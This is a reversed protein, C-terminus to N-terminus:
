TRRSWPTRRGEARRPRPLRGFRTVLQDLAETVEEHPCLNLRAMESMRAAAVVADARDATEVLLAYTSVARGPADWELAMAARIRTPATAREGDVDLRGRAARSLEAAHFDAPLRFLADQARNRVRESPALDIAAQLFLGASEVDPETDKTAALRETAWGILLEGLADRHTGALALDMEALARGAAAKVEGRAAALDIRGWVDLPGDGSFLRDALTYNGTRLAYRAALWQLHPDACQELTAFATTGRGSLAAALAVEEPTAAADAAGAPSLVCTALTLCTLALARPSPM